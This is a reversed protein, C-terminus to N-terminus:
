ALTALVLAGSGEIEMTWEVADEYEATVECSTVIGSGAYTQDGTATSGFLFGVAARAIELIMIAKLGAENTGETYDVVGTISATWARQGGIIEKWGLSDRTSVDISATTTSVTLSRTDAITKNPTGVISAKFESGNFKM